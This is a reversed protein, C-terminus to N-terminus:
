YKIISGKKGQLLIDGLRRTRKQVSLSLSFRILYDRPPSRVPLLSLGAHLIGAFSAQQVHMDLTYIHM